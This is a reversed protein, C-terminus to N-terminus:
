LCSKKFYKLWLFSINPYNIFLYNKLNRTCYGSLTVNKSRTKKSIKKDYM